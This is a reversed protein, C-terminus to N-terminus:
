TTVAIAIVTTIAIINALLSPISVRHTINTNRVSKLRNLRYYNNNTESTINNTVLIVDNYSVEINNVLNPM